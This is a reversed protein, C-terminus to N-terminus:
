ESHLLEAFMNVETKYKRKSIDLNPFIRVLLMEENNNNLSFGIIGPINKEKLLKEHLEKFVNTSFDSFPPPQLLILYNRQESYHLIIKKKLFNFISDVLLEDRYRKLEFEYYQNEYYVIVDPPDDVYTM